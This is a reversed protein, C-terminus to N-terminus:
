PRYSPDVGFKRLMELFNTTGEKNREAIRVEWIEGPNPQVPSRRLPFSVMGNIWTIPGGSQSRKFVVIVPALNVIRCKKRNNHSM